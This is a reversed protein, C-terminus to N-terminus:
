IALAAYIEDIFETLWRLIEDLAGILEIDHLTFGAEGPLGDSETLLILHQQRRCGLLIPRHQARTSLNSLLVYHPSRSAENRTARALLQTIARAQLRASALMRERVMYFSIKKEQVYPHFLEQRGSQKWCILNIEHALSDFVSWATRIVGSAEIELAILTQETPEQALLQLLSRYHDTSAQLRLYTASHYVALTRMERPSLLQTSYLKRLLEREAASDRWCRLRFFSNDAEM